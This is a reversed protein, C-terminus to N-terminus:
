VERNEKKEIVVKKNRKERWSSVLRPREYLYRLGLFKRICATQM